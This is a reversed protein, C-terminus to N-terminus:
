TPLKHLSTTFKLIDMQAFGMEKRLSQYFFDPSEQSMTKMQLLMEGNYDNFRNTLHAMENDKLWKKVEYTTWGPIGLKKPTSYMAPGNNNDNVADRRYGEPYKGREGIERILSKLSAEILDDSSFDFLLNSGVMDALWGDPNYHHQVRVPIVHKRLKHMYEAESRCSPSEKYKQSTCIICVAANEVGYAMSNELTKSHKEVDMWVKYGAAKLRDKVRVMMNKCDWQYSIMVHNPEFKDFHVNQKKPERDLLVWLAGRCARRIADKNSHKEHYKLAEIVGPEQNIHRKCEKNFGLTWFGRAALLQEEVSCDEKLLKALYTLGSNRVIKEKNSEHVALHDLAETVEAACFGYKRTFHNSSKLSSALIKIILAINHDDSNIISNEDQNIIYCLLIDSRLRVGDNESKRCKMLIEVARVGRYVDRSDCQRIINHLISLSGKAIFVKNDTKVSTIDMRPHMLGLFLRQVVGRDVLTQCFEKSLDSSNWMISVARKLNKVAIYNESAVFGNQTVSDWLKIVIEIIGLEYVKKVMEARLEERSSTYILKSVWMLDEFPSGMCFDEMQHLRSMRKRLEGIWTETQSFSDTFGVDEEIEEERHRVKKHKKKEKKKKKKEVSPVSRPSELDMQTGTENTPVIEIHTQTISAISTDNTCSSKDEKYTSSMIPEPSPAAPTNIPVNVNLEKQPSELHITLNITQGSTNAQTTVIQEEQPLAKEANEFEHKEKESEHESESSEDESSSSESESSDSSTEAEAAQQERLRQARRERRTVPTPAPNRQVWDSTRLLREHEGSSGAEVHQQNYQSVNHVTVDKREKQEKKRRRKEALMEVIEDANADDHYMSKSSGCGM